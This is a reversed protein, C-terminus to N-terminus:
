GSEPSTAKRNRRLKIGTAVCQLLVLALGTMFLGYGVWRTSGRTAVELAFGAVVFPIALLALWIAYIV